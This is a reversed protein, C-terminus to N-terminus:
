LSSASAEFSVLRQFILMIRDLILGVIGVIFVVVFMQAFTESSGNNFMDWVFKGIGESSSLLEAAVLVMWGVGLSIRLGTFMLPLASPIV